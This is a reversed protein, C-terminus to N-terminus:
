DRRKGSHLKPQFADGAPVNAPQLSHRSLTSTWSAAQKIAPIPALSGNSDFAHFSPSAAIGATRPVAISGCPEVRM